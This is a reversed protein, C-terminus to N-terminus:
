QHHIAQKPDERFGTKRKNVLAVRRKGVLVKELESRLHRIVDLPLNKISVENRNCQVSAGSFVLKISKDTRTILIEPDSTGASYAM